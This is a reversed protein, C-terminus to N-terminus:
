SDPSLRLPLAGNEGGRTSGGVVTTSSLPCPGGCGFLPSIMFLDLGALSLAGACAINITVTHMISTLALWVPCDMALGQSVACGAERLEDGCQPKAQGLGLHRRVMADQLVIYAAYQEGSQTIGVRVYQRTHNGAGSALIIGGMEAAAAPHRLGPGTSRPRDPSLNSSGNRGTCAVYSLTHGLTDNNSYSQCDTKSACVRRRGFSIAFGSAGHTGQIYGAGRSM